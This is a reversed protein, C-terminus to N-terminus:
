GTIDFSARSIESVVYFPRHAAGDQQMTAYNSPFGHHTRASCGSVQILGDLKLM